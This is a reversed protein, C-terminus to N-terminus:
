FLTTLMYNNTSTYWFALVPHCIQLILGCDSDLLQVFHAFHHKLCQKPVFHPQAPISAQRTQCEGLDPLILVDFDDRDVRSTQATASLAFSFMCTAIELRLVDFVDELPDFCDLFLTHDFYPECRFVCTRISDVQVYVDHHQQSFYYCDDGLIGLHHEFNAHGVRRVDEFM